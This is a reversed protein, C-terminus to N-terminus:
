EEDKNKKEGLAYSLSLAPTFGLPQHYSTAIDIRLQKVHIGLGFSTQVPATALGIRLSLAEILKYDFGFKLSMPNILDKEIEGALLIKKNPTFGVGLKFETPLQEFENLSVKMPSFVHAGLRLSPSLAAQVGLEFTFSAKNGYEPINVGIYDLQAGLSFNKALKRAYSLGIKQENYDSFGFYHANVGFTGSKTPIGAGMGISNIASSLFRRETYLTFSTHELFALGAQNSFTSNIDTFTVSADGMGEGRAGAPITTGLQAHTNIWVGFFLIISTYIKKM